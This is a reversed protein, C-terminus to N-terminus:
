LSTIPTYMAVNCEDVGDIHITEPKPQSQVRRFFILPAQAIWPASLVLLLDLDVEPLFTV